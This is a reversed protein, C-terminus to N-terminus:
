PTTAGTAALASRNQVLTPRTPKRTPNSYLLNAPMGCAIPAASRSSPCSTIRGSFTPKSAGMDGCAMVDNALSTSGSTIKQGNRLSTTGGSTQWRQLVQIGCGPTRPSRPGDESDQAIRSPSRVQPSVITRASGDAEASSRSEPLTPAQRSNVMGAPRGHGLDVGLVADRRRHLAGTLDEVVHRDLDLLCLVHEQHQTGSRALAETLCREFERRNLV